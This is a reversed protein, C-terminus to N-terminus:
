EKYLRDIFGSQQIEDLLSLDWYDKDSLRKAKPDDMAVLDNVFLVSEANPRLGREARQSVHDYFYGMTTMDPNRLYKSLVKMSEDKNRLLFHVGEIYGKLFNVLIGRNAKLFSTTTTITGGTTPIDLKALMKLGEKTAAMDFPPSLVTGHIIRAKLASVRAAQGEGITLFKVDESSNVGHDRLLKTLRVYSADRGRSVGLVKGKLDRVSQIDPVTFLSSPLSNTTVGLRVLDMGQHIAMIVGTDAALLVQASGSVLAPVVRGGGTLLILEVDLGNKRWMGKEVAVWSPSLAIGMIPFVVRLKEASLANCSISLCFGMAFIGFWIKKRM